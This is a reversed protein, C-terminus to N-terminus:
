STLSMEAILTLNINRSGRRKGCLQELLGDVVFYRQEFFKPVLLKHYLYEAFGQISKARRYYYGRQM